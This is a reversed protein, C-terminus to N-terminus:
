VEAPQHALGEAEVEAEAAAKAREARKARRDSLIYIGGIAFGLITPLVLYIGLVMLIALLTEM